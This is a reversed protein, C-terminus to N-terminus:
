AGLRELALSAQGKFTKKAHLRNKAELVRAAYKVYAKSRAEALFNGAHEFANGMYANIM